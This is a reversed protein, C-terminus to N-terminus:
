EFTIFRVPGQSKTDLKCAVKVAEIAGCGCVMATMAYSTGSGDAYPVSVPMFRLSTGFEIARVKQGKKKWVVIGSIEDDEELVPKNTKGNLWAVILHMVVIHGCMAVYRGDTLKWLKKTTGSRMNNQTMLSDVALTKGDFAITTM